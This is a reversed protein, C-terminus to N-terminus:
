RSPPYAAWRPLNLPYPTPPLLHPTPTPAVPLPTDGLPCCSPLLQAALVIEWGQGEGLSRVKAYFANNFYQDDFFKAALM